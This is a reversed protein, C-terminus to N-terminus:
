NRIRNDSLVLGSTNRAEVLSDPSMGHSDNIEFVNNRVVIDDAGNVSVALSGSKLVFVNDEITINKHVPAEFREIEPWIAIVPSGCEVFKNKRIALEHVPGSEYWGRADDSVLIASMPMRYIHKTPDPNKEASATNSVFYVHCSAKDRSVLYDGPALRITVPRGDYEAAEELARRLVVTADGDYAPLEIVNNCGFAATCLVAALIPLFKNRLYMM